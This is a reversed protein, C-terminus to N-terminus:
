QGKKKLEKRYNKMFEKHHVQTFFWQDEVTKSMYHGQDIIDLDNILKSMINPIQVMLKRREAWAMLVKVSDTDQNIVHIGSSLIKGINLLSLIKNREKDFLNNIDLQVLEKSAMLLDSSFGWKSIAEEALVCHNLISRFIPYKRLYNVDFDDCLIESRTILNSIIKSTNDLNQSVLRVLGDGLIRNLEEFLVARSTPVLYSDNKIVKHLFIRLSEETLFGFARDLGLQLTELRILFRNINIFKSRIFIKRIKGIKTKKYYLIKLDKYLKSIVFILPINCSMYNMKIKFHDFLITFVIFPNGINNIIGVMPLGTIENGRHFWRKAFEYTDKSVHTKAESIDVGLSKCWSIYKRAVKDNKIVIDDGLLIYQNFDDYGCLFGCWHVLLHHTITFAIWSSYSGMPQGAGYRVPKGEPTIFDRQSLLSAWSNSLEQDFIRTLLRKQLNIPFRDTASSLDLSWFSEENEEWVHRPDQTFTRDCPFKKILKFLEDHIPKLFLQTYYDLIGILRLKCEPDYVFSIKGTYPHTLVNKNRPKHRKHVFFRVSDMLYNFGVTDTLNGLWKLVHFRHKVVSDQASITAPGHPGAKTSLYINDRSFKPRASKLQFRKVFYNIYGSPLIKKEKSQEIITQYNPKLKDKQSGELKLTRSLLLITLLLKKDELSGSALPRLFLLKKPWGDKLGIGMKNVKLPKGCLYRTVHLRMYKLTKCAELVGHNKIMSTLLQFYQKIFSSSNKHDFIINCLKIVVNYLNLNM